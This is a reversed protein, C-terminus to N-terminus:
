YWVTQHSAKYTTYNLILSHSAEPKTRRESSQKQQEPDKTSGYLNQFQKNQNQSFHWQYKTLSQMSDTSQRPYYPSKLLILEELGHDHYMKVDTQM